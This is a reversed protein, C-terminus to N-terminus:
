KKMFNKGWRNYNTANDCHEEALTSQIFKADKVSLKGEEVNEPDKLEVWYYLSSSLFHFIFQCGAAM